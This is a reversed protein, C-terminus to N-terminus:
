TLARIENALDDLRRAVRDRLECEWIVIVRWGSLELASQDREDRARNEELKMRWREADTRPMKSFRCGEHAHWFCGHVFLAVRQSPFVLDPRGPLDRRHLRFRLGRAHLGRRVILEPKTHKGKIAAMNRSRTNRDHVDALQPWHPAPM